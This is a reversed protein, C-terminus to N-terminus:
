QCQIVRVDYVPSQLMAVWPEQALMWGHFGPEGAHGDTIDLLAAADAPQDPPRAQCSQVAITLSGVQVSQGVQVTYDRSVANIKDLVELVAENRPLWGSPPPPAQSWAM